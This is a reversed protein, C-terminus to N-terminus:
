SAAFIGTTLQSDDSGGEEVKGCSIVLRFIDQPGEVNGSKDGLDYLLGGNLLKGTSM